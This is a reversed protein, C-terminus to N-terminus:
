LSLFCRASRDKLELKQRVLKWCILIGYYTPSWKICCKCFAVKAHACFWMKWKVFFEYTLFQMGWGVFAGSLLLFRLFDNYIYCFLVIYDELTAFVFPYCWYGRLYNCVWWKLCWFRLTCFWSALWLYICFLLNSSRLWWFFFVLSMVFLFFRGKWEM